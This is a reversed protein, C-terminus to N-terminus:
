VGEFRRLYKASSAFSLAILHSDVATKVRACEGMTLLPM